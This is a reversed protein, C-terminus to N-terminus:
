LVYYIITYVLSGEGDHNQAVNDERKIKRNHESYSTKKQNGQKEKSLFLLIFSNSLVQVAQKLFFLKSWGLKRM